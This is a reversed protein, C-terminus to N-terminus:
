PMIDLPKENFFVTLLDLSQPKGRELPGLLTPTKGQKKLIQFEPRRVFGLFGTIRLM